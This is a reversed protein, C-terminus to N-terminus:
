DAIEADDDDGEDFGSWIDVFEVDQYGSTMTYPMPVRAVTTESEWTAARALLEFFDRGPGITVRLRALQSWSVVLVDKGVDFGFSRFRAATRGVAVLRVRGDPKDNPRKLRLNRYLADVGFEDIWQTTRAGWKEVQETFNKAKSLQAAVSSTSFDQWKLQFLVLDGTTTDFVAADIDTATTRGRRLRVQGDVLRYRDGQFLAYVDMRMWDERADNLAARCKPHTRERMMRALSLPNRFIASVPALVYPAHVEILLPVGPTHESRFYGSHAKTALLWELGARVESEPAGTVHLMSEVVEEFPRWITMSMSYNVDAHLRAGEEVFVIHKLKLSALAHAMELLLSGSFGGLDTHPWIGADDRWSALDEAMRMAFFEDIEHTTTYGIMTGRATVWPFTLKGMEARVRKWEEVSPKAIRSGEGRRRWKQMLSFDVQDHFHDTLTRDTCALRLKEGNMEAGIMGHRVMDAARYLVVHRGAAHMLGMAMNRTELTSTALPMGPMPAGLRELLLSILVNYGRIVIDFDQFALKRANHRGLKQGIYVQDMCRTAEILIVACVHPSEGDLFDVVQRLENAALRELLAIATDSPETM